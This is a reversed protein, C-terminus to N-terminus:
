LRIVQISYIDRVKLIDFFAQGDAYEVTTVHNFHKLNPYRLVKSM